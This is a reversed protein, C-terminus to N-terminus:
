GHSGGLRCGTEGDFVHLKEPTFRFLYESGSRCLEEGFTRCCLEANNVTFHILSQEGLFEVMDAAARLLNPEYAVTDGCGVVNIHEPRIGLIVRKGILAGLDEGELSFRYGLAEIHSSDAAIGPILNMPPTGIFGAVFVNTPEAYLTRPDAIQQIVGQDMVVIRDGLTMAEVQDHTVYVMVAELKKHIANINKRTVVRLKADLNSLPEDLLMAKPQRVLARGLAVRQREGGSLHKPFRDMLELLELFSSAEQIRKEIEGKSLRTNELGFALNEKVNMHPYLAYDQFVMAIDRDKPHVNNVIKGDISIEGLDPEDLGAIMRLTTSKGCGSPGVLVVLEGAEAQLNFDRVAALAKEGKSRSAYTKTVNRLELYAM